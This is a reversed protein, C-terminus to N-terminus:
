WTEKVETVDSLHGVIKRGQYIDYWGNDLATVHTVGYLVTVNRYAELDELSEAIRLVNSTRDMMIITM